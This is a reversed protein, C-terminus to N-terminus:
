LNAMNEQWNHIRVSIEHYFVVIFAGHVHYRVYVHFVGISKASLSHIYGEPFRPPMCDNCFEAVFGKLRQSSSYM